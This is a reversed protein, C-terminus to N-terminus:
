HQRLFCSVLILALTIAFVAACFGFIPRMTYISNDVLPDNLGRWDDSFIFRMVAFTNNGRRFISPKGLREYTEPHLDRLHSFLSQIEINWAIGGMFSLGFFLLIAIQMGGIRGSRRGM